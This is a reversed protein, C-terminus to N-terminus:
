SIHIYPKGKYWLAALKNRRGTQFRSKSQLGAPILQHLLAGDACQLTHKRRLYLGRRMIDRQRIVLLLFACRTCFCNRELLPSHHASSSSTSKRM